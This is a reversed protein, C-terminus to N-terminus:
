DEIKVKKGGVMKEFAELYTALPTMGLEKRYEDVKEKNELGSVVMEGQANQGIQTGYRQKGATMIQLRDYLLAYPQGDLKGAKVDKEIAPLAAAMLRVDGSHQVILFAANATEKGFREVDLWGLETALRRIYATNDSDVERMKKVDISGTRVAQDKALRAAVETQITKLRDITLPKPEGLKLPAFNLQDPVRDLKQFTKSHGEPGLTLVGAKVVAPVTQEQGAMALTVKGPTYRAKAVHCGGPVAFTCRGDEFRLLVAPEDQTTWCGKLDDPCTVSPAPAEAGFAPTWLGIAAVLVILVRRM